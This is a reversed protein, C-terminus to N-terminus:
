RRRDLGSRATSDDVDYGEMYTQRLVVKTSEATSCEICLVSGVALRYDPVISKHCSTCKGANSQAPFGDLIALADRLEDRKTNYGCNCEFHQGLRGKCSHHHFDCFEAFETLAEVKAQMRRYETWGQVKRDKLLDAIEAELHRIKRRYIQDQTPETPGNLEEDLTM